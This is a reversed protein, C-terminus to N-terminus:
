RPIPLPQPIGAVASVVLDPSLHSFMQSSQQRLRGKRGRLLDVRQDVAQTIPARDISSRSGQRIVEGLAQVRADVCLLEVVSDLEHALLWTRQRGNEQGAPAVLQKM